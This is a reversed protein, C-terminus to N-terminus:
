VTPTTPRRKRGAAEVIALLEADSMREMRAMEAQGVAGVAVDVKLRDVPYLGLLRGIERAASVMSAPDGKERATVFASQLWELVDNRQISLRTADASQRAQIASSVAANTLARHAAVRAGAVAYGARIAAQAGKGDVLFEDIFRAQRATLATIAPM